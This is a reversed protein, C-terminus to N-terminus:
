RHDHEAYHTPWEVSSFGPSATRAAPPWDICETEALSPPLHTRYDVARVDPKKVAEPRSFFLSVSAATPRQVPIDGIRSPQCYTVEDGDEEDGLEEGGQQPAADRVTM